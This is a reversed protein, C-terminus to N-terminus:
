WGVSFIDDKNPASLKRKKSLIQKKVWELCSIDHNIACVDTDFWFLLDADSETRSEEYMKQLTKELELIEEDIQEIPVEAYQELWWDGETESGENKKLKSFQLDDDDVDFDVNDLNLDSM